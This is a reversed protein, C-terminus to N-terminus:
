TGDDNDDDDDDDDGHDHRHNGSLQDTRHDGRCIEACLDAGGPDDDM